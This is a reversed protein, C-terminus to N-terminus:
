YIEVTILYGQKKVKWRGYCKGINDSKGIILLNKPEIDMKRRNLLGYILENIKIFLKKLYSFLLKM